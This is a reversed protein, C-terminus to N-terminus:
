KDELIKNEDGEFLLENTICIFILGCLKAKYQYKYDDDIFREVTYEKDKLINAYDKENYIQFYEESCLTNDKMEYSRSMGVIGQEEAKLTAIRLDVAADILKEIQM